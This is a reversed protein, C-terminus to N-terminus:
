ITLVPNHNYMYQGGGKLNHQQQINSSEKPTTESTKIDIACEPPPQAVFLLILILMVCTMIKYLTDFIIFMLKEMLSHTLSLTATSSLSKSNRQLYLVVSRIDPM